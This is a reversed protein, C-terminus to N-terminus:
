IFAALRNLRSDSILFIINILYFIRFWIALAKKKKRKRREVGSNSQPSSCTTVIFLSNNPMKLFDNSLFRLVVNIAKPIAKSGTHPM